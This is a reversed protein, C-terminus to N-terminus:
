RTSPSGSWTPKSNGAVTVPAAPTALVDGRSIDLQDALMLTVADGAAAAALDGAM